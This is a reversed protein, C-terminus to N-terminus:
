IENTFHFKQPKKYFTSQKNSPIEDTLTKGFICIENPSILVSIMNRLGYFSECPIKISYNSHNIKLM